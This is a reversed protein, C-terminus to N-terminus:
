GQGLITVAVPARALGKQGLVAVSVGLQLGTDVQPENLVVEGVVDACLTLLFRVTSQPSVFFGVALQRLNYPVIYKKLAGKGM